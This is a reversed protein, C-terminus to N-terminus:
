KTQLHLQCMEIEMKFKCFFIGIKRSTCYNQCLFFNLTFRYIMMYQITLRNRKKKKKKTELLKIAAESKQPLSTCADYLHGLQADFGRLWSRLGICWGSPWSWTCKTGDLFSSYQVKILLLIKHSISEATYFDTLVNEALPEM